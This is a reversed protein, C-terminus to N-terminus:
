PSSSSSHTLLGRFLPRPAPTLGLLPCATLTLFIDEAGQAGLRLEFDTSQQSAHELGGPHIKQQCAIKEWESARSGKRCRDVITRLWTVVIFTLQASMKQERRIILYFPSGQFSAFPEACNLAGRSSMTNRNRRQTATWAAVTAHPLATLVTWRSADRWKM